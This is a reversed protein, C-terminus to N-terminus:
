FTQRGLFLITGSWGDVIMYMFPRDAHFEARRVPAPVATAGVLNMMTVAAAETKEEDVDIFTRHIVADVKLKESGSIGSFDAADSFAQEVGLSKLVDALEYSKETKFKPLWLDVEYRSLGNLWKSFTEADLGKLADPEDERPLIVVMSLRRGKYPLRVVKVGDYEGYSFEGYQKMMPVESVRGGDRFKEPATMERDFKKQWQANFYVANTIMMRTAPDLSSLISPIKGNTNDSVWDNIKRLSAANDYKMDLEEAKSRYYLYLDDQYSKRLDFGKNLWVRNASFVQGTSTIDRVYEGLEGHLERSFGLAREIEAATDGSAGAYAMGFASIISFPSFFYSSESGAIIKAANLAFNNVVESSTSAGASVALAFVILVASIIRAFKYTM